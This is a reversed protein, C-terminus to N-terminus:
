GGRIYRLILSSLPGALYCRQTQCSHPKELITSVDKAQRTLFKKVLQKLTLNLIAVVFVVYWADNRNPEAIAEPNVCYFDRSGLISM